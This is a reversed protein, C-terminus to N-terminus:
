SVDKYLEDELENIAKLYNDKNDFKNIIETVTGIKSFPTAKLTNIDEIAELGFEAYKDLLINLIEKAEKGYKTFVDRKIVNEAREKRTLPKQNYVVHCILDFPEYNEGVEEVLADWIVGKAEFENIIEIKKQESNWKEKFLNLSKYENKVKKSTYEKIEETILKGDKTFYQTRKSLINAEVDDIYFKEGKAAKDREYMVEIIDDMDIDEPEYCVIPAGDFEPDAFLETAKRFDIITFSFKNYEEKVRTGRGIIQKFLSLSSINKDIVILKCTQVDVGTTLLDSTTAIVPYTSKPDIFNDLESKGIENDGTITLVYRKDIDVQNPNQNVIERRMREAHDIDQCFIITKSLPDTSKLFKSTTEAVLETRKELILERDFDKQNYIRDSIKKGFKDVKGEPPRWGELDKDIDIRLIKFPALYGDEIGQKLSYTFVPEGFYSTTSVDNTEKPTATLGIQIASDFYELVERWESNESASGRHCEDVVILDFFDKSVQKYVKDSDNPGTISQYLSLFIEYSTDIKRNSIKTLNEGFPSFDNIRAQDVLVNRDALFLIRKTDNSKWLRWMIQFATYTKGSGTAMVLLNRKKGQLINNVIRNIAVQQYYRPQKNTSGSFFPYTYSEENESKINKHEKYLEWLYDHSPFEDMSYFKEKQGILGSKDHLVFGKGNSSIAFPVDIMESYDLAQQMGKNVTLSAKKAEIVAIPYNPKHYLVLDAYKPDNRLHSGNKEYIKGKTLTVNERLQEILNWGSKELAPKILKSITDAESYSNIEFSNM